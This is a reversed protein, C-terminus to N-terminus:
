AKSPKEFKARMETMQRAISEPGVIPAWASLLCPSKGQAGKVRSCPVGDIIRVEIGMHVKGAM